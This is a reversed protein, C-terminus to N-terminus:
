QLRSREGLTRSPDYNAETEISLKDLGVISVSNNHSTDQIEAQYYFKGRDSRRIICGTLIYEADCYLREDRFRVRKGLAAKVESIEM